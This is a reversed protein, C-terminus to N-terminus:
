TTPSNRSTAPGRIVTAVAPHALPFQLAAALLPVGHRECVAGSAKAKAVIEPPASTERKMAQDARPIAQSFSPCGLM